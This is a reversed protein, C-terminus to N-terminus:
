SVISGSRTFRRGCPLSGSQRTAKDSFYCFQPVDVAFGSQPHRCPEKLFPLWSNAKVNALRRIQGKPIGRSARPEESPRVGGGTWINGRRPPGYPRCAPAMTGREDLRASEAMTCRRSSLAQARNGALGLRDLFGRFRRGRRAAVDAKFLLTEPWREAFEPRRDLQVALDIDGLWEQNTLYSGFIVVKRVCYLWSPDDNVIGVRVLFAKLLRDADTRCLPPAATANALANGAMTNRWTGPRQQRVVEVYGLSRLSYVLRQAQETPIKLMNAAKKVTWFDQNISRLLARVQM